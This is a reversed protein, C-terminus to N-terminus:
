PDRGTTTEAMSGNVGASLEPKVTPSMRRVIFPVFTSSRGCECTTGVKM